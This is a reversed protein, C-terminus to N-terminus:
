EHFCSSASSRIAESYLRARIEEELYLKEQALKNKLESIERYASANDIASAIQSPILHDIVAGKPVHIPVRRLAGSPSIELIWSMGSWVFLLNDHFSVIQALGLEPHPNAQFEPPQVKLLGLADMMKESGLLPKDTDLFRQLSGDANVFAFRTKKDADFGLVLLLGSGFVAVRRPTFPVDLEVAGKYNGQRDFTVLYDHHTGSKVEQEFRQGTNTVVTWKSTSLADDRTANVLVAVESETAFYSRLRADHLDPITAISFSAGTFGDHGVVISSLAIDRLDSASATEMFIGGDPSCGMPGYVVQSAAVKPADKEEVFTLKITPTSASTPKKGVSTEQLKQAFSLSAILASLTVLLPKAQM